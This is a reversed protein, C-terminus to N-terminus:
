SEPIFKSARRRLEACQEKALGHVQSYKTWVEKEFRM